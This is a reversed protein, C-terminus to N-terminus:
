NHLRRKLRAYRNVLIFKIEVACSCSIVGSHQWLRLEFELVAYAKLPYFTLVYESDQQLMVTVVKAARIKHINEDRM